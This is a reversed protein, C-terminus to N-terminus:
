YTRQIGHKTMFSEEYVVGALTAIALGLVLALLLPKCVGMPVLWILLLALVCIGGSIPNFLLEMSIDFAGLSEADQYRRFHLLFYLAACLLSVSSFALLGSLSFAEKFYLTAQYGAVTLIALWIVLLPALIFGM